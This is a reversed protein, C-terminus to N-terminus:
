LPTTLWRRRKRRDLRHWCSPWAARTALQRHRQSAALQGAAFGVMGPGTEAQRRLWQQALVADQHHGLLTQVQKAAKATSVAQKGIAPASLEAAYRVQKARIRVKHLHRDSPRRRARRVAKRLDRWGVGALSPLVDRALETSTSPDATPPTSAAAHVRDLLTLYRDSDLVRAVERCAVAREKRLLASLVAQGEADVAGKRREGEFQSALVDCDRVEGLVSGLWRLDDRTHRVWVPDLVGAVTKLNSRLRRTAVRAQHISEPPPNAPDVRLLYDHDLLRRLSSGIGWKLVDEMTPRRGLDSPGDGEAQSLAQSLKPRGSGPRAGVEQLRRQVGEVRDDATEAELEIEHFRLGDQHGGHVTVSDDDIEGILEGDEDHLEIRRRTCELEAVMQLPERRLIGVLIRRAEGPVSDVPGVWTHESRVTRSAVRQIPLKLTWIGPGEAEGSRHRLTISRAWLRLDQSDFYTSWLRQPPLVNAHPVVGQLDPLAFEFDVELKTESEVTVGM